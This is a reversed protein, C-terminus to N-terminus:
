ESLLEGHRFGCVCGFKGGFDGGRVDVGLTRFDCLGDQQWTVWQTCLEDGIGEQFVDYLEVLDAVNETESAGVLSM